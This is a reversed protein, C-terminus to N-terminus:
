GKIACVVLYNRVQAAATDYMYMLLTLFDEFLYFVILAACVGYNFLVIPVALLIGFHILLTLIIPLFISCTPTCCALLVSFSM